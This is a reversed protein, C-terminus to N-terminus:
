NSALKKLAVNSKIYYINTHTYMYKIFLKDNFFLGNKDRNEKDEPNLVRWFRVLVYMRVFGVQVCLLLFNRM